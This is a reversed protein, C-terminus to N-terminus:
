HAVSYGEERIAEAIRERSLTSQVAVRGAALDIEVQAQADCQQIAQTVARVCHQCTMGQVQFQEPSLSSSASSANM